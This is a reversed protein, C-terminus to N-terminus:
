NTVKRLERLDGQHLIVSPETHGDYIRKYVTKPNLNLIECWEMVCKTEGNYEILVNNTKNRAQEAMTIFTCNEPCYMGDHDKREISLKPTWGNDVAWKAFDRFNNRWEDCVTIGRAGYTYYRDSEKNYCRQIMNRWVNFLLEYEGSPLNVKNRRGCGCSTVKTFRDNRIYRVTGCECRVKQFYRGNIKKSEGLIKLKGFRQGKTFNMLRVREQIFLFSCSKSSDRSM